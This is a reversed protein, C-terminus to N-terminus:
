YNISIPNAAAHPPHLGQPQFLHLLNKYIVDVARFQITM